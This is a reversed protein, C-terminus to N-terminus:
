FPGWHGWPYTGGTPLEPEDEPRVRKKFIGVACEQCIQLEFKLGDYNSCYGGSFKMTAYEFASFFEEDGARTSIGCLDCLIDAVSEVTKTELHKKIM